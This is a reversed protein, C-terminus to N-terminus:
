HTVCVVFSLDTHLRRKSKTFNRRMIARAVNNDSM